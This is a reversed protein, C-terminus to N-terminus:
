EPKRGGHAVTSDYALWFMETFAPHCEVELFRQAFRHTDDIVCGHLREAAVVAAPHEKESEPRSKPGGQNPVVKDKRELQAVQGVAVAADNLIVKAFGPLCSEAVFGPLAINLVGNHLQLFGQNGIVDHQTTSIRLFQYQNRLSNFQSM